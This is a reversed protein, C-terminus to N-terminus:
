LYSVINELEINAKIGHSLPVETIKPRFADTALRKSMHKKRFVTVFHGDFTTGIRPIHLTDPARALLLPDAHHPYDLNQLVDIFVSELEEATLTCYRQSAMWVLTIEARVNNLKNDNAVNCDLICQVQSILERDFELVMSNIDEKWPKMHKWFFKLMNMVSSPTKFFIVSILPWPGEGIKLGFPATSTARYPFMDSCHFYNPSLFFADSIDEPFLLCHCQYFTTKPMLKMQHGTAIISLDDKARTKDIRVGTVLYQNPACTFLLTILPVILVSSTFM